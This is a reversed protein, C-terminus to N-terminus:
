GGLGADVPEAILALMAMERPAGPFVTVAVMGRIAPPLIHNEM